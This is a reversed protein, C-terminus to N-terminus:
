IRSTSLPNPQVSSWFLHSPFFTCVLTKSHKGRRIFLRDRHCHARWCGLGQKQPGFLKVEPDSIGLKWNKERVKTGEYAVWLHKGSILGLAVTVQSHLTSSCTHEVPTESPVMFVQARPLQNFEKQEGGEYKWDCTGFVKLLPALLIRLASATKTCSVWCTIGEV